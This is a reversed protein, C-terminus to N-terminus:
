QVTNNADVCTFNAAPMWFGNSGTDFLITYTKGGLTVDIAHDIGDLITRIPGKARSGSRAEIQGNDASRKAM